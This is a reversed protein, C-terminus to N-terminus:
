AADTEDPLMIELWGNLADVAEKHAELLLQMEEICLDVIQPPTHTNFEKLSGGNLLDAIAADAGLTLGDVTWLLSNRRTAPNSVLLNYHTKIAM